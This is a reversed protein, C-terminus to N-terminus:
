AVKKLLLSLKPDINKVLGLLDDSVNGVYLVLRFKAYSEALEKLDTDSLEGKNRLRLIKQDLEKGEPSNRKYAGVISGALKSWIPVGPTVGKMGELTPMSAIVQRGRFIIMGETTKELIQDWRIFESVTGNFSSSIGSEGTPVYLATIFNRAAKPSLNRALMEQYESSERSRFHEIFAEAAFTSTSITTQADGSRLNRRYFQKTFQPIKGPKVVNQTSLIEFNVGKQPSSPNNAVTNELTLIQNPSSNESDAIFRLLRQLGLVNANTITIESPMGGPNIPTECGLFFSEYAKTNNEIKIPNLENNM